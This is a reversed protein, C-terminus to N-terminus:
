LLKHVTQKREAKQGRIPLRAFTSESKAKTNPSPNLTGSAWLFLLVVLCGVLTAIETAHRTFIQCVLVLLAMKFTGSAAHRPIVTGM